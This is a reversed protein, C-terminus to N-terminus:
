PNVYHFKGPIGIRRLVRQRILQLLAPSLSTRPYHYGLEALKKQVDNLSKPVSFFNENKLIEIRATISNEFSKRKTEDQMVKQEPFDRTKDLFESIAAKVEEEPGEVELRVQGHQIKVKM